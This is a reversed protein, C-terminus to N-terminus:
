ILNLARGLDPDQLVVLHRKFWVSEFLLASDPVFYEDQYIIELM